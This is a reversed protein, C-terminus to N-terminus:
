ILLLNARISWTVFRRTSTPEIGYKFDRWIVGGFFTVTFLISRSLCRTSNVCTYRERSIINHTGTAIVHYFLEKVLQTKLGLLFPVNERTKLTDGGGGTYIVAIGTVIMLHLFLEKVKKRTRKRIYKYHRSVWETWFLLSSASKYYWYSDVHKLPSM